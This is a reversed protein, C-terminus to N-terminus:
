GTQRVYRVREGQDPDGITFELEYSEGYRLHIWRQYRSRAITDSEEVDLNLAFGLPGGDIEWKAAASVFRRKRNDFSDFLCAPLARMELTMDPKLVITSAALAGEGYGKQQNLFELSTDSLTYTGALDTAKPESVLGHDCGPLVM